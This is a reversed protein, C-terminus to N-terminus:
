SAMGAILQKYASAAVANLQGNPLTGVLEPPLKRDFICVVLAVALVANALVWSRWYPEDRRGRGAMALATGLVVLIIMNAAFLLTITLTRRGSRRGTRAEVFREGLSCFVGVGVM